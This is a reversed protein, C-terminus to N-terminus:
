RRVQTYLAVLADRLNEVCQLAIKRGGMQTSMLDREEAHMVTNGWTRLFQWRDPDPFNLANCARDILTKLNAEETPRDPDNTDIRLSGLRVRDWIAYELVSRALAVAAYYQGFIFSQYVETLRKTLPRPLPDKIPLIVAKLERLNQHWLDPSFNPWDLIEFAGSFDFRKEADDPDWFGEDILQELKEEWKGLSWELTERITSLEPLFRPLGHLLDYLLPETIRYYANDLLQLKPEVELYYDAEQANLGYLVPVGSSAKRGIIRRIATTAQHAEELLSKLEDERERPFEGREIFDLPAISEV